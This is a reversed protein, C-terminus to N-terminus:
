PCKWGWWCLRKSGPFTQLILWICWTRFTMLVHPESIQNKSPSNCLFPRWCHIQSYYMCTYVYCLNHYSMCLLSDMSEYLIWDESCSRELWDVTIWVFVRGYNSHMKCVTIVCVNSHNISVPVHIHVGWSSSVNSLFQHFWYSQSLVPHRSTRM